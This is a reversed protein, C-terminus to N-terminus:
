LNFVFRVFVVLRYQSIMLEYDRYVLSMHNLKKRNTVQIENRDM